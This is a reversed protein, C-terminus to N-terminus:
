RRISIFTYMNFRHTCQLQQVQLTNSECVAFDMFTNCMKSIFVVWCDKARGVSKRRVGWRCRVYMCLSINTCDVWLIIYLIVIESKRSKLLTDHWGVLFRVICSLWELGNLIQHLAHYNSISFITFRHPMTLFCIVIISFQTSIIKQLFFKQFTSMKCPYNRM